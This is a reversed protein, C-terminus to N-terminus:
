IGYIIKWIIDPGWEAQRLHSHGKYSNDALVSYSCM